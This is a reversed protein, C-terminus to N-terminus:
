FLWGLSKLPKRVKWDLDHKLTKKMGMVSGAPAPIYALMVPTGEPFKVYSNFIAM